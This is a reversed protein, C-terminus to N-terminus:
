TLSTAWPGRKKRKKEEKIARKCNKCKKKPNEVKEAQTGSFLGSQDFHVDPADRNTDYQNKYKLGQRYVTIGWSDRYGV